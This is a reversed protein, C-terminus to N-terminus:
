TATELSVIGLEELESLKKEGRASPLVLISAGIDVLADIELRKEGNSLTVPTTIRGM